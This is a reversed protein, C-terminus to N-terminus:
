LAPSIVTEGAKHGTAPIVESDMETECTACLIIRVGDETCTAPKQVIPTGPKHGTAPITTETGKEGCVTCVKYGIGDETCTAEKKVVLKDGWTHTTCANSEVTVSGGSVSVSVPNEDVDIFSNAYASVSYTGAKAGEKVTFTITGVTGTSLGDLNYLLFYGTGSNPLTNVDSSSKSASSFELVSTDYKFGIRGTFANGSNSTLSISVTVTEGPKAAFATTALALLLLSALFCTVLRKM